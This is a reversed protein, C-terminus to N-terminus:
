GWILNAFEPHDIFPNRNKQKSYSRENRIKEFDDVPDDNHWKLMISYSSIARNINYSDSESYRVLLYMIIRAVDGKVDDNPEFTNSSYYGCVTKTNKYYLPTGNNVEGYVKNGRTSNVVPDEPRIHQIDSGAGSTEFWGNSKTWMHERNWVSWNSHNGSVSLRSYVLLVNNPNKPDADTYPIWDRVNNYSSNVAGTSIITRLTQKLLPGTQVSSGSLVKNYYPEIDSGTTLTWKAYLTINGTTTNSIVSVKNGSFNSSLYWGDFTYGSRTPTSLLVTQGKNYKTVADNGLVGGSLVYTISNLSTDEKEKWKAYFAKDGTEGVPIETVPTGTLSSDTYWGDFDYDEKTPELLEVIDGEVYSSIADLSLEGGNLHYTIYYTTLDTKKGSIVVQVFESEDSDDYKSTTDKAQITYHYKGIVNPTIMYGIFLDFPSITYTSLLALKSEDYLRIVYEDANDIESSFVYFSSHEVKNRLDTPTALKKSSAYECGFLIFVFAFVVFMSITKKLKTM